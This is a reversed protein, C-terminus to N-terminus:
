RSKNHIFKIRYKLLIKLEFIIYIKEYYSTNDLIKQQLCFIHNKM